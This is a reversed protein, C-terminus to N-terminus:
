RRRARLREQRGRQRRGGRGRTLPANPCAAVRVGPAACLRRRYEYELDHLQQLQARGDDRRSRLPDHTDGGGAGTYVAAGNPSVAVSDLADLPSNDDGAASGPVFTCGTVTSESTLCDQYGVFAGTAPDLKFRSIADGDVAAVYVNASDPSVTM